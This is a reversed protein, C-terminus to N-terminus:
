TDGSITSFKGNYEQNTHSSRSNYLAMKVNRYAVRCIEDKISVAMDTGPMGRKM